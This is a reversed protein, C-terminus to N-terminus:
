LSPRRLRSGPRSLISVAKAGDWAEDRPGDCGAERGASSQFAAARQCWTHALRTAAPKGAPQPNFCLVARSMSCACATAAPKGAPQPNFSQHLRRRTWSVRRRLRSGPRSLISVPRIRRFIRMGALTAAPKGAPQPNFGTTGTAPRATMADCGAERGASSQFKSASLASVRMAADCGAERGASSQFMQGRQGTRWNHTTAAPKGAPQPNFREHEGAVKAAQHRRLRSGPRSLISVHHGGMRSHRPRYDCGAERGASSQFRLPSRTGAHSM